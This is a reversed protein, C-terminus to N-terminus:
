RQLQRRRWHHDVQLAGGAAAGRRSVDTFYWATRVEGRPDGAELLGRLKGNADLRDPAITMSKRCRYLPDTKRGSHALTEIQVRRRVEGLVFNAEADPILPDSAVLPCCCAPKELGEQCGSGEDSNGSL